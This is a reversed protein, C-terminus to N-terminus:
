TTSPTMLLQPWWGPLSKNAPHDLKSTDKGDMKLMLLSLSFYAPDRVVPLLSSSATAFDKPISTIHLFSSTYREIVGAREAPKAAAYDAFANDLYLTSDSSGVRVSREALNHQLSRAGGKALAEMIEMAFEEMTPKKALFKDLIGM